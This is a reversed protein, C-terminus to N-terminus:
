RAGGKRSTLADVDQKRYLVRSGVKAPTLYGSISWRWLTTYSVKLLKAVEERTIFACEPEAEREREGTFRALMDGMVRQLDEAGLVYVQAPNGSTTFLNPM